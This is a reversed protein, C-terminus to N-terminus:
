TRRLNIHCLGKWLFSSDSMKKQFTINWQIIQQNSILEKEPTIGEKGPTRQSLYFFPRSLNISQYIFLYNNLYISPSLYLLSLSLSLSLSRIIFSLKLTQSLIRYIIPPLLFFHWMYVILTQSVMFSLSFMKRPKILQFSLPLTYFRVLSM